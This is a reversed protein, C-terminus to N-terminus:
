WEGYDQSEGQHPTMKFVGVTKKRVAFLRSRVAGGNKKAYKKM